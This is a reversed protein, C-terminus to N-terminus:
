DPIFVNKNVLSQLKEALSAATMEEWALTPLGANQIQETQLSNHTLFFYAHRPHEKQLNKWRSTDLDLLQDADVLVLCPQGVALLIDMAALSETQQIQAVSFFSRLLVRLSAPQRGRRAFLIVGITKEPM